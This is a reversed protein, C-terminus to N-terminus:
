FGIQKFLSEFTVTLIIRTRADIIQLVLMILSHCKLFMWKCDVIQMIKRIHTFSQTHTHIHNLMGTLQKLERNYQLSSLAVQHLAKFFYLIIIIIIIIIIVDKYWKRQGGKHRKGTSLEAHFLQKRLRGDDM